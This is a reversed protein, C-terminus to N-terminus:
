SGISHFMCEKFEIVAIQMGLCLGFYPILNERAYGAAMIVKSAEEVLGRPCPYCRGRPTLALRM